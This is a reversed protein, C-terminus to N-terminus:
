GHDRDRPDGGSAHDGAVGHGGAGGGERGGREPTGRVAAAAGLEGAGIAPDHEADGAPDSGLIRSSINKM